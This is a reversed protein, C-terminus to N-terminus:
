LYRMDGDGEDEFDIDLYLAQRAKGYVRDFLLRLATIDGAHAMKVLRRIAKQMDKVTVTDLLVNKLIQAKQKNKSGAAAKNGKVFKGSADRDGNEDTAVPQKKKEDTLRERKM